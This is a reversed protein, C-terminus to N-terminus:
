VEIGEKKWQKKTIKTELTGNNDKDVLAVDPSQDGDTDLLVYTAYNKTTPIGNVHGLYEYYATTEVVKNTDLDYLALVGDYRGNKDVDFYTAYILKDQHDRAYFIDGKKVQHGLGLFALAILLKKM